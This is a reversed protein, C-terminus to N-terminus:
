LVDDELLQAVKIVGHVEYPDSEQADNLQQAHVRLATVIRVREALAADGMAIKLAKFASESIRGLMAHIESRLESDTMGAMRACWGGVELARGACHASPGLHALTGAHSVLRNANTIDNRPIIHRIACIHKNIQVGLARVRHTTAISAHICVHEANPM